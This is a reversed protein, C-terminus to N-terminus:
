LFNGGNKLLFNNFSVEDKIESESVGISDITFPEIDAPKYVAIPTSM